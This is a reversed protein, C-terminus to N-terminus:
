LRLDFDFLYARNFYPGRSQSTEATKGIARPSVVPGRSQSFTRAIPPNGPSTKHVVSPVSSVSLRARIVDSRIFEHRPPRKIRAMPTMRPRQIRQFQFGARSLLTPLMFIARHRSIEVRWDRRM